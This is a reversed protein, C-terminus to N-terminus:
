CDCRREVDGEGRDRALDIPPDRDGRLQHHAIVRRRQHVAPHDRHDAAARRRGGINIFAQLCLWATIGAALLAGFTDPAALAIRIGSYALLLFLAIVVIAASCGSSRASRPSSSTTSRTRAGVVRSQASVADRATRRRRPRPAGPRHPLRRRPPRALSGALGPDAGDPLRAPRRRDRGASRRRGHAALHILNAGAVFFM